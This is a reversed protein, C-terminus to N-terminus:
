KRDFVSIKANMKNPTCNFFDGFCFIVVIIHACIIKRSRFSADIPSWKTDSFFFCVCLYLFKILRLLFCYFNFTYYGKSGM